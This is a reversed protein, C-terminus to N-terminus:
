KTGVRCISNLTIQRLNGPYVRWKDGKRYYYDDFQICSLSYGAELLAQSLGVEGETILQVKDGVVNAGPLTDPFADALVAMSTYIFYSQLHPSFYGKLAYKAYAKGLIPLKKMKRIRRRIGAPVHQGAYAFTSAGVAGVNQGKAHFIRWYALLWGDKKPGNCACNMFVVDGSYRESKLLRYGEDYAGFDFGVNSRFVVKRVFAFEQKLHRYVSKQEESAANVVLILNFPVGSACRRMNELVPRVGCHWGASLTKVRELPYGAWTALIVQVPNTESHFRFSSRHEM